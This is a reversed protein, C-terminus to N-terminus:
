SGFKELQRGQGDGNRRDWKSELQSCDTKCGRELGCLSNKELDSVYKNGLGIVIQM